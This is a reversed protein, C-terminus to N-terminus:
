EENEEIRLWTDYIASYDVDLIQSLKEFIRERIVSDYAAGMLDDISEGNTLANVYDAFRKTPPLDRGLDDEPYASVYWGKVTSNLEQYFETIERLTM